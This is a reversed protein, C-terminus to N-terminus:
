HLRVISDTINTKQHATHNTYHIIHIISKLPFPDNIIFTFPHLPTVETYLKMWHSIYYSFLRFHEDDGGRRSSM